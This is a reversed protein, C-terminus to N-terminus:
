IAQVLPVWTKLGLEEERYQHRTKRAGFEGKIGEVLNISQGASFLCTAKDNSNVGAAM